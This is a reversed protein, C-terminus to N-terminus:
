MDSKVPVQQTICHIDGGGLLVERCPIGIVTHNPFLRTLIDKAQQDMTVDLLPFIVADNTVIYNSYSSALKEGAQRSMGDSQDVGEADEQTRFLIPTPLKHVILSRGQADKEGTLVDYAARCSHYLPEDEDDTWSLVVEGPRVVHMLNDVHGNTEDCPDLGTPLWFIKKVGLYNKLIDELEQKSLDPNRSPHLLCEETTFLSGEGDVHISGGELVIPASYFDDETIQSMKEAVADDLDWPYYLGDVLGGWANFQWSIARREGNHNVLYTAGIDRMWSDNYSMEIIKIAHALLARAHQFQNHPVIMVVKVYAVMENAVQAFSKQALKGGYRWNDSRTPWAMWVEQQPEHEGPMYFGDDVPLTTLQKSM